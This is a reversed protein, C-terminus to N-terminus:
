VHMGLSEERHVGEKRFIHTQDQFDFVRIKLTLYINKSNISSIDFNSTYSFLAM